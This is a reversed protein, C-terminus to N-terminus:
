TRGENQLLVLIRSIFIGVGVLLTSAGGFRDSDWGYNGIIQSIMIGGVLMALIGVVLLLICIIKIM